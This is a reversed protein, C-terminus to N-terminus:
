GRRAAATVPLFIPNSSAPSFACTRRSCTVISACPIATPRKVWPFSCRTTMPTMSCAATTKTFADGLLVRMEAETQPRHTGLGNLLTIDERRVGAGELEALLVPLILDNPTPRTIDSHVIAVTDGTEVLDALPPTGIPRRVAERLAAPPDHVAPLSPAAVIDTNEPLEVALGTRGYALKVDM